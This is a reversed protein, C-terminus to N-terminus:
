VDLPYSPHNAMYVRKCEAEVLDEFKECSSIALTNVGNAVLKCCLACYKEVSAKGLLFVLSGPKINVEDLAISADIGYTWGVSGERDPEPDACHSRIKETM